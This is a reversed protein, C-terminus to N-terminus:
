FKSYLRTPLVRLLRAIVGWRRTVYAIERGKMVAAFIQRAAREPTAVWFLGEQGKSMPTDVNGPRIDIVHIDKGSKVAKLRLGELYNSVFAKSASYAPHGDNGRLAAISSIGALRGSGAREFCGYAANAVAAFGAVNVDIVRKTGEWELERTFVDVGASIVVVEAGNMEDFLETLGLAASEPEGLDMKKVYSKTGLGAGLKELLDERRATLGVEFGNRAFERALELGIGSSAGVVIAKRKENM